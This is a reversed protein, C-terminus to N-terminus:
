SEKVQYGQATVCRKSSELIAVMAKKVLPIHKKNIGTIDIALCKPFYIVDSKAALYGQQYANWERNISHMWSVGDDEVFEYKNIKENYRLNPSKAHPYDAEFSSRIADTM